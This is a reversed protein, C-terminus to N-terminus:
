GNGKYQAAEKWRKVAAGQTSGQAEVRQGMYDGVAIWVSKSKQHVTVRQPREWVMVTVERQIM